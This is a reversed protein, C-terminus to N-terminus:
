STKVLTVPLLIPVQFKIRNTANNQASSSITPSVSISGITTNGNNSTHEESISVAIDFFIQQLPIYTESCYAQGEATKFFRASNPNIKANHENGFEQASAVGNIIQKLTQAVFDDLKM